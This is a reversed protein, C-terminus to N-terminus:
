GDKALDRSTGIGRYAYFPNQCFVVKHMPTRRFYRLLSPQDEAFVLIDSKRYSHDDVRRLPATSQFWTPGVADKIAISADFGAAVLMEVHRFMTKIGGTIRTPPASFYIIRRGM